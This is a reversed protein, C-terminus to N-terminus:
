DTTTHSVLPHIEFYLLQCCVFEVKTELGGCRYSIEEFTSSIRLSFIVILVSGSLSKINYDLM